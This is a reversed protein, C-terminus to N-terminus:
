PFVGRISLPQKPLFESEPLYVTKLKAPLLRQSAVDNVENTQFFSQDNLDVASLMALLNSVINLSISPQPILTKIDQSKPMVIYKLVDISDNVQNDSSQSIGGEKIRGRL